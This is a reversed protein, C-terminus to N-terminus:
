PGRYYSILPPHADEDPTMYREYVNLSEIGESKIYEKDIIIFQTNKLTSAALEYVLKYFSIFIDRNVEEGINKMPTDIILFEPLPLRNEAAVNHLALAYCVNLLTKKGGSGANYFDWAITKDGSPLISPKWNELNIVIKDEPNIGPVGVKLLFDLYTREIEHVYEVASTLTGTEEKIERKIRDMEIKLMDAEEELKKIAESIESIKGLGRIREQITAVRRDIERSQSLFASDYNKLEERLREDLTTKEQKIQKVFREQRKLARSHREISESIDDLRSTLDKRVIEAHAVPQKELEGPISKCLPCAEKEATEFPEIETGCFPCHKFKVGSMFLSANTAKILKFKTTILEAKLTKQEDIREKLDSLVQEERNLNKNSERLTDRLEDAFHTEKMYGERIQLQESRAEELESKLKDIQKRIETETDYNFEKLFTRVQNVAEIKGSQEKRLEDLRIELDNLKETYYGVLFRMVDRSKLRRYTDELRFFSSDLDDQNLYCYWLIDRFSLRVLPSDEKTKSRRVKIPIINMFYFILDSLNFITEGWIPGSATDIPALVSGMESNSSKWSVQVQNTSKAEREFLVEYDGILCSLEVSVLERTIAPTRELKGGLCFHILRAISSKGTSIQGHFFSVKPSFEIIERSKRCQLTLTNFKINM